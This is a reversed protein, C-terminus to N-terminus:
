RRGVGTAPVCDAFLDGGQDIRNGVPSLWIVAAQGTNMADLADHSGGSSEPVVGEFARTADAPVTM